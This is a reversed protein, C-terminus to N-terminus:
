IASRSWTPASQWLANNTIGIWVSCHTLIGCSFFLLLLLVEGILYYRRRNSLGHCQQNPCVNQCLYPKQIHGIWCARYLFLNDTYISRWRERDIVSFECAQLFQDMAKSDWGLTCSAVGCFLPSSASNVIERLTTLDSFWLFLWASTNFGGIDVRRALEAILEAWEPDKLERDAEPSSM